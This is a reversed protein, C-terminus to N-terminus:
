VDFIYERVGPRGSLMVLVQRVTCAMGGSVDTGGMEHRRVEKMKVLCCSGSLV